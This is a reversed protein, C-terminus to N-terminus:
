IARLCEVATAKQIRKQFRYGALLCSSVGFVLGMMLAQFFSHFEIELVYRGLAWAAIGAAIGALTGAIVGILLLEATAIRALVNRSAGLAKLLAANRFREDQTASIAAILVLVAAMVTFAFLLSLAATLKNLVGQIQQLSATIDVVTLNPYTQSLRFDLDPRNPDQYYSTIWSQPLQNLLSPPMIVFFNVRMSGWDLKRISTIPATVKEGALEFTLQDGLKLKLTKAIGTELSIQPADGTIWKGSLIKNGSPLENTYSLNFERDVLRRANEDQYTNPTITQQNIDILRGRVMPYFDPAGIGADILLQDIGQKQSEQVNIMFRNPANSPINGQWASLLDQRLLLILLLSMIAIGLATIQVIAYAVSRGQVVLVFRMVFNQTRVRSLLWLALWSLLSFIGVAAGFSLATWLALKWDRAAVGILALCASLGFVAIWIATSPLGSYEKRILRVPSVRVLGLLPPLAFGMLLFWSLAASWLVPWLSVSHLNGLVLNGLALLLLQQVLFGLISGLIAAILGLRVLTILQKQFINSSSAGLCKLVACSDAQKLVYRRSSLAIAVASVMATLLAILSLFREARELTKRMMPQANELSEVRVGRLGQTEIETTAWKEYAQIDSDTGALLLRYTVRSGLGVLGTKPLDKLSMMVRPAFNMFGAGRDLEQTLVGDIVFQTNGLKLRDGVAAKLTALMARDVWVSGSPPGALSVEQKAPEVKLAGRLPYQDSVAKLSALKSHDGSSAMSPFVITQAVRLRRNQAEELFGKPLPQDSALLLDSALLQRADFAFTRQM